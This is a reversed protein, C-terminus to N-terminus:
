KETACSRLTEFHAPLLRKNEAYCSGSGVAIGKSARPFDFDITNGVVLLSCAQNSM